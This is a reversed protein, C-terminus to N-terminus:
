PAIVWVIVDSKLAQEKSKVNLERCEEVLEIKLWLSQEFRDADRRVLLPQRAQRDFTVRLFVITSSLSARPHIIATTLPMPTDAVHMVNLVGPRSSVGFCCACKSTFLLDM